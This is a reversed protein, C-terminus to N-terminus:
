PPSRQLIGDRRNEGKHGHLDVVYVVRRASKSGEVRLDVQRGLVGRVDRLNETRREVTGVVPVVPDGLVADLLEIFEALLEVPVRGGVDLPTLRRIVVLQPRHGDFLLFLYDISIGPVAVRREVRHRQFAFDLVELVFVGPRQGLEQVPLLAGQQNGRLQGGTRRAEVGLQIRRGLREVLRAVHLDEVAVELGLDPKGIRYGLAELVQEVLYEGVFTPIELEDAHLYDEFAERQRCEM